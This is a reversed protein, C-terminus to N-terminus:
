GGLPSAWREGGVHVVMRAIVAPWGTGCDARYVPFQLDKVRESAPPVGATGDLYFETDNTDEHHFFV